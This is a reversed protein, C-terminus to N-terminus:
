AVINLRIRKRAEREERKEADRKELEIASEPMVISGLTAPLPLDQNKAYIPHRGRTKYWDAVTANAKM